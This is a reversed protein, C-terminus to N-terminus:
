WNCNGDRQFAISTKPKFMDKPLSFDFSFLIKPFVEQIMKIIVIVASIVSGTGM